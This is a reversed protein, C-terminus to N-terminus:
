IQRPDASRRRSSQRGDAHRAQFLNGFSALRLQKGQVPEPGPRDPNELRSQVLPAQTQTGSRRRHGSEDTRRCRGVFLRRGPVGYMPTGALALALADGDQEGVELTRRRGDFAEIRLRGHVAEREHVRHEVVDLPVDDLQRLRLSVRGRDLPCGSARWSRELWADMTPDYYLGMLFLSVYSNREGLAVIPATRNGPMKPTRESPVVWTQMGVYHGAEEVFGDPLNALIVGRVAAFLALRSM